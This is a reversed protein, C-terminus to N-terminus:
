SPSLFFSPQLGTKPRNEVPPSKATSKDFDYRPNIPARKRSAQRIVVSVDVEVGGAKGRSRITRPAASEKATKQQGPRARISGKDPESPSKSTAAKGAATVSSKSGAANKATAKPRAPPRKSTETAVTKTPSARKTHLEQTSPVPTLLFKAPARARADRTPLVRSPRAPETKTSDKKGKTEKQPALKPMKIASLDHFESAEEDRGSDFRVRPPQLRRKRGGGFTAQSFSHEIAAEISTSRLIDPPQVPKQAAAKASKKGPAKRQRRKPAPQNQPLSPPQETLPSIPSERTSLSRAKETISAAPGAFEEEEPERSRCKLKSQAETEDM